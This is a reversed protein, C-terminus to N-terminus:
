KIDNINLSNIESLRCGTAFFVEIIAHERFTKCSERLSELIYNSLGKPVPKPEKMEKLRRAPNTSIHGEEHAWRFISRLAKGRHNVTSPKLNREAKAEMLYMKLQESTVDEIDVDGIERILLDWQLEYGELTSPAYGAFRKDLEYGKWAESLLM